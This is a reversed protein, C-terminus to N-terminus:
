IKETETETVPSSLAAKELASEITGPLVCPRLMELAATLRTVQAKLNLNERIYSAMTQNAAELATIKAREFYLACYLCEGTDENDCAECIRMPSVSQENSM